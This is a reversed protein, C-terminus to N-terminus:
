KKMVERLVTTAYSGKELEFYLTTKTKGENLEDKEISVIKMKQPHQAIKKRGGASSAESLQPIRFEQLSIGEKGIIEKEIKGAKGDAFQTEFGFLPATPTGKELVDGEIPQLGFGEKMREAIIQNFLFSQYAHTFLYRMSKPLKGIAGAFDNPFRCLHHIMSREFRNEIPFDNSAQPFDKTELLKKRAEKLGEPEKEAPHTLYLMVAKELNGNILEKGVLHTVERIGGFRQEGFFNAVGNQLIEQISKELRKKTENQDLEINRITISFANGSLDGIEIREKKWEFNRLDIMKSHFRELREVNPEFISIRQCTIARKDKLGAYGIRKKSVQLFRALHSVALSTETNIKELDCHLQSFTRDAPKPPLQIPTANQLGPIQDDNEIPFSNSNDTNRKEQPDNEQWFRKVECKKGNTQIEEVVFDSYRRKIQGGIGPTSTSFPTHM